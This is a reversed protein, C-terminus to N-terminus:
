WTTAAAAVVSVRALRIAVLVRLVRLRGHVLIFRQRSLTAVFCVGARIVHPLWDQHIGFANWVPCHLLDQLLFHLKKGCVQVGPVAPFPLGLM